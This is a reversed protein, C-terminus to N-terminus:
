HKQAHQQPLFEPMLEMGIQRKSHIENIAKRMSVYREANTPHTTRTYIGTPDHASMAHWFDPASNIDYGARALIYLGIYDAEREFDPSYSLMAAQAGLNSFGRTGAAADIVAGLIAGAAMNQGSRQPHEMINHALEHALVYALHTDDEAFEMMAASVVVKEGDAYANVGGKGELVLAFNCRHNANKGGFLEYCLKSGEPTIRDAVKGLRRKKKETVRVPEVIAPFPNTHSIHLQRKQEAEIEAQTIPPAFTTPQSCALLLISALPYLSSLFRKRTKKARKERTELRKERMQEEDNGRLRSDLRHIWSICPPAKQTLNGARAQKRERHFVSGGDSFSHRVHLAPASMRDALADWQVRFESNQVRM